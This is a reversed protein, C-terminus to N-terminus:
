DVAPFELLEGMEDDIGALAARITDARFGRRLLKGALKQPDGKQLAPTRDIIRGLIENELAAPYLEELAQRAAASPIGLRALEVAIRKPGFGKRQREAIYSAAAREDDVYGKARLTELAANVEAGDHGKRRLKRALDAATHERQAALKAGRALATPPTKKNDIM